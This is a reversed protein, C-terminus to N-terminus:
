VVFVDANERFAAPRRMIWGNQIPLGHRFAADMGVTRNGADMGALGNGAHIDVLGNGADMGVM